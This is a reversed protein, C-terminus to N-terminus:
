IDKVQYYAGKYELFSIKGNKAHHQALSIFNKDFSRKNEDITFEFRNGLPPLKDPMIVLSNGFVKVTLIHETILKFGHLKIESDSVSLTNSSIKKKTTEMDNVKISNKYITDSRFNYQM